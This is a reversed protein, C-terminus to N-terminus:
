GEVERDERREWLAWQMVARIFSTACFPEQGWATYWSTHKYSCEAERSRCWRYCVCVCVGGCKGREERKVGEDERKQMGDVVWGV